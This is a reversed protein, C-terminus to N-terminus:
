AEGNRHSRNKNQLFRRCVIVSKAEYMEQGFAGRNLELFTIYVYM